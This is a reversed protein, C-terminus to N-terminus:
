TVSRGTGPPTWSVSPSGPRQHRTEDLGLWRQPQTLIHAVMGAYLGLAHELTLDTVASPQAM